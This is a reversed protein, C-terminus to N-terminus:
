CQRHALPPSCQAKGRDHGGKRRLLMAQCRGSEQTRTQSAIPEHRQSDDTRPKDGLLKCPHNRSWDNAHTQCGEVPTGSHTTFSERACRKRGLNRACDHRPATFGHLRPPPPLRAAANAATAEIPKPSAAGRPAASLRRERQACSAGSRGACMAPRRQTTAPLRAPHRTTCVTSTALEAVRGRNDFVPSGLSSQLQRVATWCNDFLQGPISEFEALSPWTPCAQPRNPRVEPTPRTTDFEPWFEAWIRGASSWM